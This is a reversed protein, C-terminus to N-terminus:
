PLLGCSVSPCITFPLIPFADRNEVMLFPPFHISVVYWPWASNEKNCNLHNTVSRQTSSELDKQEELM